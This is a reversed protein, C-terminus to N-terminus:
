ALDEFYICCYILNALGFFLLLFVRTRIRSLDSNSFPENIRIPSYPKLSDSYQILNAQRFLCFSKSGGVRYIKITIRVSDKIGVRDLVRIRNGQM